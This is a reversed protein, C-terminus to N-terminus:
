QWPRSGSVAPNRQRPKKFKQLTLRSQRSCAIGSSYKYRGFSIMIPRRREAAHFDANGTHVNAFTSFSERPHRCAFCYLFTIYAFSISAIHRVKAVRRVKYGGVKASEDCGGSIRRGNQDLRVDNLFGPFIHGFISVIPGKGSRFLECQLNLPRPTSFRKLDAITRQLKSASKFSRPIAKPEHPSVVAILRVDRTSSAARRM